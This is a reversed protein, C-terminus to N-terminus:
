SPTRIVAVGRASEAKWESSSVVDWEVMSLQPFSDNRKASRLGSHRDDTTNAGWPEHLSFATDVKVRRETKRTARGMWIVPGCIRFTTKALFVQAAREGRDTRGEWERAIGSAPLM